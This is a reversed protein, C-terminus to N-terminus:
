DFCKSGTHQAIRGHADIIHVQRNDRGDDGALLAAMSQKASYGDGLLRLARGGHLPNLLAQTALVGFQGHGWTCLAGVALFKSAVAAGFENANLDCAIISWTM